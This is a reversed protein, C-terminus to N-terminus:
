FTITEGRRSRRAIEARDEKSLSKVDTKFVKSSQPNVGNESPRSNRVAASKALDKKVEHATTFMAGGMMEDFHVAKYAGELDVGNQLLQLFQPNQVEEAFDFNQINYKSVLADAQDLWEKYIKESNQRAEAEEQAKRFADNERQLRKNEMLQEVSLGKEFAEEEYFSKDKEIAETLANIDTADVGYKDSLMSLISDHSALQEKLSATEKFRENIMKQTREAYEEHFEGGKKIMNEFKLHMDEQPEANEEETGTPQVVEETSKGYVVNELPNTKRNKKTAEEQVAVNGDTTSGEAGGTSGASAGGGEGFLQLNFVFKKM